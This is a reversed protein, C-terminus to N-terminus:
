DKPLATIHHHFTSSRASSGSSRLLPYSLAHLRFQLLLNSFSQNSQQRPTLGQTTYYILRHHFGLRLGRVIEQHDSSLTLFKLHSELRPYFHVTPNNLNIVKALTPLFIHLHICVRSRIEQNTYSLNLLALTSFSPLLSFNNRTLFTKRKLPVLDFHTPQMRRHTEM